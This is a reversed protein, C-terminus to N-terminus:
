SPDLNLPDVVFMDKKNKSVFKLHEFFTHSNEGLFEKSEAKVNKHLGEMTAHFTDLEEENFNNFLFSIGNQAEMYDITISSVTEALVKIGEGKTALNNQNLLVVIHLKKAERLAEITAIKNSIEVEYGASDEFGPCDM